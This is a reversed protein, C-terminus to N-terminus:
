RLFPLSRLRRPLTFERGAGFSGSLGMLGMAMVRRNIRAATQPALKRNMRMMAGTSPVMGVANKRTDIAQRPRSTIRARSRTRQSKLPLSLAQRTSPM